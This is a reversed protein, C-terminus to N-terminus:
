RAQAHAPRRTAALSGGPGYAQSPSWQSAASTSSSTLTVTVPGPRWLVLQLETEMELTGAPSGPRGAGADRVPGPGANSHSLSPRPQYRRPERASESDRLRSWYRSGVAQLRAQAELEFVTITVNSDPHAHLQGHRVGPEPQFSM